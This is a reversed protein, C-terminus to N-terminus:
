QSSAGPPGGIGTTLFERLRSLCRARTPGLSGVPIGLAAAAMEYSPRGQDADAVLVRLVQRCRPSLRHFARWLEADRDAALVPAAPDDEPGTSRDLVGSDGVLAFRKSRRLAALAEHRCTTGIWAGMRDPDRLDALHELVRLWTQQYVDAADAPGLRYARCVAWVRDGFRGVIGDWATRDGDLARRVLWSLDDDPGGPGAAREDTM